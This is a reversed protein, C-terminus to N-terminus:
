LPNCPPGTWCSGTTTASYVVKASVGGKPGFWLLPPFLGGSPYGKPEPLRGGVYKLNNSEATPLYQWPTPPLAISGTFDNVYAYPELDSTCFVSPGVTFGGHDACSSATLRFQMETNTFVAQSGGGYGLLGGSTYNWSDGTELGYHDPTVVAGATTGGPNAVAVGLMGQSAWGEIEAFSRHVFETCAKRGYPNVLVFDIQWVCVFDQVQLRTGSNTVDPGVKSQNVFQVWDNGTPGFGNTNIQMSYADNGFRTDAETGFYLDDARLMSLQLPRDAPLWVSGPGVEGVQIGVVPTNPSVSGMPSLGGIKPHPLRALVYASSVCRHPVWGNAATYSYCGVRDPPAPLRHTLPVQPALPGGGLGLGGPQAAAAPAVGGGLTQPV